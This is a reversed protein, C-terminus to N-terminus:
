GSKSEGGGSITLIGTGLGSSSDLILASAESRSRVGLKSFASSLHSKVTSEALVLKRAIEGNSFGMVVMGLVQKERTSLSPKAISARLQRPFVLQGARAAALTVGLSGEIEERLVVADAGDALYGRFEQSNQRAGVAILVANPLGRRVDLVRDANGSDLDLVVVEPAVEARLLEDLTSVVAVLEVEESSRTLAASLRGRAASSAAVIATPV